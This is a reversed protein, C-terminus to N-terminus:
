KILIMKKTQVFSGATLRYTYIGTPFANANFTVQKYGPSEMQNVLTAVERGLVDFVKLTVHSQNPLQYMITTSPNFPNPYNQYLSFSSPLENSTPEVSTIMESLPRRWVGSDTGAYVYSTNDLTLTHLNLRTLGDNFFGLGVGSHDFVAIGSDATGVLMDGNPLALGCVGAVTSTQTWSNCSDRSVYVGMDTGAIIDGNPCLSLSTVGTKGPFDCDKEL